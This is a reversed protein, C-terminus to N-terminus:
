LKSKRVREEMLEVGTERELEKVARWTKGLRVRLTRM